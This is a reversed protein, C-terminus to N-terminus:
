AISVGSGAAFGRILSFVWASTGLFRAPSKAWARISRPAVMQVGRVALQPIQGHASSHAALARPMASLRGRLVGLAFIGVRWPM